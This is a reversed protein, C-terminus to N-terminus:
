FAAPMLRRVTWSTGIAGQVITIAGVVAAGMMGFPPILLASLVCCSAFQLLNLRQLLRGHGTMALLVDQSPLLCNVLQGAALIVLAPAAMEFGPGVLRLLTAPAAVMALIIPIGALATVLRVRRNAVRLAAMEGRRHLEAFHPAAVTGISIIVVWILISIRHAVSFAGVAAPEAFAGLVLVPIASISVQIVEVMGLPLATHWLGPLAEHETGGAVAGAAILPADRFSGRSAAVLVLGLLTALTLAGAMAYLLHDLRDVGALVALLTLAPWSANQVLQAAVGRKLGALAHGVTASLTQPVLLLASLALPRALDPEHFLHRAAPDAVAITLLGAVAGGVSTWALGTFLASRAARGRGVAIEAAIHRTIARELGLRAATSALGVWTICLFFLGADHTGLAAAALMYLGLKGVVEVGRVALGGAYHGFQGVIQRIRLTAM